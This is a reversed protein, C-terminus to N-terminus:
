KVFSQTITEFKNKIVAIYYGKELHNLYIANYGEVLSKSAYIVKTSSSSYISIEVSLNDQIKNEIVLIEDFSNYSALLLKSDIDTMNVAKIPSYSYKGDFDTQKLRYYSVGAFPKNDVYKYAILENSFHAGNVKAFAIWNTADKSKELTFYDNNEESLTTWLIEVSSLKPLADFSALEIPLPTLGEELGFDSFGIVGTIQITNNVGDRVAANYTAWNAQPDTATPYYVPNKMINMVGEDSIDQLIIDDYYLTLDYTYDAITGFTPTITWYANAYNTTTLTSAGDDTPNKGSYYYVAVSTPFNSGHWVISALLKGGLTYNTTNGDGITGSETATFPASGPTFEFAGIDSVGSVVATSRSNDSYDINITSIQKAKGNAAWCETNAVPISLDGISANTFLNSLKLNSADTTGTTATLSFSTKDCSTNAKWDTFNYTAPYWFGLTAATTSVLLNYDSSGAGWGTAPSGGQNGIAYHSGVGGSRNNALINNQIDVAYNTLSTTSNDGRLIGFTSLAGSSAAGTIFISNYYVNIDVSGAPDSNLWIGNFETNSTESEGLTIINNSISAGTTPNYIVIGSATPPATATTQTSANKIGYIKNQSINSSIASNLVIASANTQVAGAGTAAINYITNKTIASSNSAGAIYIGSVTQNAIGTSTGACALTYISNANINASSTSSHLIGKLVTSSGTGSATITNIVNNAILISSSTVSNIGYVSNAGSTIDAITNLTSNGVNVLGGNIEIGSFLTGSTGQVNFNEITNNQVSSATTTGVNLVLGKINASSANNTWAAGGCSAAQGGIFNGTIIHDDGSNLYIGVQDISSLDDSLTKYLSNGSITFADGVNALYIGFNGFNYIENGSITISTNSTNNSYVACYPYKLTGSTASRIDSNSITINSNAGSGLSITGQTSTSNNHNEIICYDILVNTSGNLIEFTPSTNAATTTNNKFVLYQNITGDFTVNDAGDIRIMAGPGGASVKNVSGSITRTLAASPQITLIHGSGNAESWQSLATIGTETLDSTIVATVNGRLGKNNIDVFLSGTAGSLSTYTEGSGVNYTGSLYDSSTTFYELQTSNRASNSIITSGSSGGPVNSVNAYDGNVTSCNTLYQGTTTSVETIRIFSNTFNASNASVYIRWYRHTSLFYNAPATSYTGGCNADFVEAIVEVTASTTVANVMEIMNYSGKGVPFTITNTGSPIIRKIPGNVYSTTSGSGTTTNASITLINTSTTTLKGKTLDLTYVTLPNNLTVGSSTNIGLVLRNTATLTGTKSITQASTGVMRLKNGAITADLTGAINVNGYIDFTRAVSSTNYLNFKGATITLDNIMQFNAHSDTKRFSVQRNSGSPNNVKINGLALRYQTPSSIVFGNTSGAIASTGDGMQLTSGIFSKNSEGGAPILFVYYSNSNPPDVVTVTGGTILAFATEGFEITHDALIAAARSDLNIAGNSMILYGTNPVYLKGYFNLIANVSELKLTGNLNFTNAGAGYAFNGSTIRLIGGDTITANGAGTTSTGTNVCSISASANNLWLRGTASVITQPGYYPTITSASSLKFTGNTITLRKGLLTPSAVTIVRTVDLIASNASGKNITISNFDCTGGSGSITGISSGKFTVSAISSGTFNMDFIGNVTLNSNARTRNGIILQRTGGTASGVINFTGNTAVTVDGDCTLTGSTIGGAFQLIGSTGQGVTINNCVANTVGITITHGNQITVNDTNTPVGVPSWSNVDSWTGSATNSVKEGAATTSAPGSVAASIGGENVAAVKFWYSKSPLGTVTSSISNANEIAVIEYTTGGDESRSVYFFAENSSNDTWNVTIDTYTIGTFSINSPASPISIPTFKYLVRYGDSTTSLGSIEGTASILTPLIATSPSIRSVNSNNFAGTKYLIGNSANADSIGINGYDEQGARHVDANMYGYIYEILNSTETLRIQFTSSGNQSGDTYAIIMNKWEITFVRNPSSGTVKYHVKGNSGTRMDCSFAVLRPEDVDLEPVRDISSLSSGFRMVGDETAVFDIYAKGMFYFTFGINNAISFTGTNLGDVDPNILTTTGSSMNTLTGNTTATFTYDVTSAQQYVKNSFLLCFIISFLRLNINSLLYLNRM